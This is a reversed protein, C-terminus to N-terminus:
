KLYDMYGKIEFRRRANEPAESQCFEAIRELTPRAGHKVEHFACMRAINEIQGGSLRFRAALAEAQGPELWRIKGAWIRAATAPSPYGLQIKVPFRRSFAQDMNFLMNSTAVFLGEFRELEDLLINQISNSYKDFSRTVAVRKGFIADAENFMLVPPTSSIAALYGFCRFMERYYKESEGVYEGELKSIDAMYLDRGYKRALQRVAETKGTGPPGSIICGASVPLGAEALKGLYEAFRAPDFLVELNELVVKNGDDFCLDVPPIDRAAVMDARKALSDFRLLREQGKFLATCAKKSLMFREESMNKGQVQVLSVLGKDVLAGCAANVARSTATEDKSDYRLMDPRIEMEDIDVPVPGCKIFHDALIIFLARQATPLSACGLARYGASFQLAPNCTLYKELMRSKHDAGHWDGTISEAALSVEFYIDKEKKGIKREVETLQYRFAGTVAYVIANTDNRETVADKRKLGELIDEAEATSVRMAEKCATLDHYGQHFSLFALMKLEARELGFAACLGACASEAAEADVKRPCFEHRYFLHLPGTGKVRDINQTNQKQM